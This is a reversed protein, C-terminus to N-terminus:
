GVGLGKTDLLLEPLERQPTPLDWTSPPKWLASQPMHPTTHRTYNLTYPTHTPHQATDRTTHHLTTYHTSYHMVHTQTTTHPSHIHPTYAGLSKKLGEPISGVM